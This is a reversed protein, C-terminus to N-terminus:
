NLRKGRKTAPDIALIKMASREKIPEPMLVENADVLEASRIRDLSFQRPEERSCCMALLQTREKDLFRIPSITRETVTGDKAQYTIRCAYRDSDFAKTIERRFTAQNSM